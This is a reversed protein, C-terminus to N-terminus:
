LGSYSDPYLMANQSARKADKLRKAEKDETTQAETQKSKDVWYRSGNAANIRAMNSRAAERATDYVSNYLQTNTEDPGVSTVMLSRYYEHQKKIQEDSRYLNLLREPTLRNAEEYNGEEDVTKKLKEQLTVVKKSVPDTYEQSVIYRQIEKKLWDRADKNMSKFDLDPRFKTIRQIEADLGPMVFGVNSADFYIRNKEPADKYGFMSDLTEAAIQAAVAHEIRPSQRYSMLEVKEDDTFGQSNIFNSFQKDDSLNYEGTATKVTSKAAIYVKVGNLRAARAAKYEPNKELRKKLAEDAAAAEKAWAHALRKKIPGEPLNSIHQGRSALSGKNFLGKDKMATLTEQYDTNLNTEKEKKITSWQLRFLELKRKAMGTLDNAAEHAIKAETAAAAREMEPTLYRGGASQPNQAGEAVVGQILSNAGEAVIKNRGFVEVRNKILEFARDSVQYQDKTAKSIALSELYLQAQDFQGWELFQDVRSAAMIDLQNQRSKEYVQRENDLRARLDNAKQRTIVGREGPKVEDVIRLKEGRFVVFGKELNEDYKALTDSNVLRGNAAEWTRDFAALVNDRAVESGTKGYLQASQQMEKNGAEIRARKVQGQGYHVASSLRDTASKAAFVRFQRTAGGGYHSLRETQRAEEERLIREAVDASGAAAEGALGYVETDFRKTVADNFAVQAEEVALQQGEQALKIAGDFVLKASDAMANAAQAFGETSSPIHVARVSEQAARGQGFISQSVKPINAM